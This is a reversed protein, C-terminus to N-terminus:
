GVAREPDTTDCVTARDHDKLVRALTRARDSGIKLHRRLTDASATRGHRHWHQRNVAFARQLLPDVVRTDVPRDQGPETSQENTIAASEADALDTFPSRDTAALSSVDEQLPRTSDDRPPKHETHSVLKHMLTTIEQRNMGTDLLWAWEAPVKKRWQPGHHSRLITRAHRIRIEDNLADHYNTIHWLVMRRWLWFTRWPELFWRALPIRDRLTGTRAGIRRLLVTRAAEIMALLMLPAATHLGVAVPDPWGATANAAVTGLSLLRVLQRLWGIPCTIWTLVLDVLVVGLLGGDLGLPVLEPLPLHRDAAVAALTRYSGAAGYAALAVGAVLSGGCAAIQGRSLKPAAPRFPDTM